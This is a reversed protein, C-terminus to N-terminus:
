CSDKLHVRKWVSTIPNMSNEMQPECCNLIAVRKLPFMSTYFPDRKAGGVEFSALLTVKPYSLKAQPFWMFKVFCTRKHKSRPTPRPPYSHQVRLPESQSLAREANLGRVHTNARISATQHAHREAAHPRTDYGPCSILYHLQLEDESSTIASCWTCTKSM